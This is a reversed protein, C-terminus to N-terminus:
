RGQDAKRFVATTNHNDYFAKHLVYNLSYLRCVFFQKKFILYIISKDRNQTM